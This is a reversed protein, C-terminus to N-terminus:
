ETSVGYDIVKIGKRRAMRATQDTGSAWGSAFALCVTAGLDVMHQNRARFSEFGRGAYKEPEGLPFGSEMWYSWVRDAISDVGTPCDGHILVPLGVSSYSALADILAERVIQDNQWSRSGTVLIRAPKM